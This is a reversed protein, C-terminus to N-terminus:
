TDSRLPSSHDASLHLGAHIADDVLQRAKQVSAPQVCLFWDDTTRGETKTPRDQHVFRSRIGTQVFQKHLRRLALPANTSSRNDATAVRVTCTADGGDLDLCRAAPVAMMWVAVTVLWWKTSRLISWSMAM